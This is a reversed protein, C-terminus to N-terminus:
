ATAAALAQGLDALLDDCDELGISLRVTGETIASMRQLQPDSERTGMIQATLILSEGSGLSPTLAFLELADAFRRAADAGGALDFSVITGFDQMQEAA